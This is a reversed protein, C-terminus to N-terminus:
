FLEVEIIVELVDVRDELAHEALTSERPCAFPGDHAVDNADIRAGTVVEALCWTEAYSQQFTEADGAIRM